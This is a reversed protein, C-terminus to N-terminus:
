LSFYKKIWNDFDEMPFQLHNGVFSEFHNKGNEDATKLGFLDNVYWETQNMPLINGNYPDDPNPAGWQEGEAPWVMKDQTAMVWVFHNTKAYNDNLTTNATLGENNLQALQSYKAYKEKASTRPDRWYNAQFSHKQAFDSYARNSAIEMLANCIRSTKKLHPYSEEFSSSSLSASAPKSVAPICYPVAGTGANVGNISVFANVPPDNYRAIYGRILNNGQSFGVANFGNQLKPDAKVKQAFVDISADMNLLYGHITDEHQNDGTPICTAYQNNTLESVKSTMKQMGPNFCSDGMGHALVSPLTFEKTAVKSELEINRRRNTSTRIHIQNNQPSSSSSSPSSPENIVFGISKSFEYLEKSLKEADISAAEMLHCHHPFDDSEYDTCQHFKKTVKENHVVETVDQVHLSPVVPSSSSDGPREHVQFTWCALVLLSSFAIAKDIYSKSLLSM